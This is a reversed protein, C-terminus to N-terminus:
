DKSIYDLVDQTDEYFHFDIQGLDHFWHIANEEVMWERSYISPKEVRGNGRRNLIEIILQRDTYQSLDSM